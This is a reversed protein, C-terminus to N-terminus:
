INIRHRLEALDYRELQREGLATFYLRLTNKNPYEPHLWELSKEAPAHNLQLVGLGHSHMFEMNHPYSSQLEAWFKWVGFGRERVNTDHFMVVAGPALKPLWTEFDHRVAEYTHLGDIHLLDVSEDMFYAAADDFTTKLLESFGSYHELNHSKVQEYLQNDYFGTHEDGAWSDVAYCKTALQASAVSQCFTFYSNGAYTGLEVFIRPSIERIAWAAFPLHGVWANSQKMSRPSFIAANLLSINDM